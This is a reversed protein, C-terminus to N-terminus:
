WCEKATRASVGREGRQTLTFTGCEDASQSGQPTASLTYTAAESELTLSYYGNESRDRYVAPPDLDVGLRATAYTGKETMYREMMQAAESLAAKAETRRAKRVSDQYAPLAVAALLAVVAVVIVLEILTFGRRSRARERCM